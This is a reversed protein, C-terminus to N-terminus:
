LFELGCFYVCKLTGYSLAVCYLFPLVSLWSLFLICSVLVKSSIQWHRPLNGRQTRDYKESTNTTSCVNLQCIWTVLILQTPCDVVTSSATFSLLPFSLSRHGATDRRIKIKIQIQIQKQQHRPIVLRHFVATPFSLSRHGAPGLHLERWLAAPLEVMPWPPAGRGGM